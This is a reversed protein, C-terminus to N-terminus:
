RRNVHLEEVTIPHADCQNALLGFLFCLTDQVQHLFRQYPNEYGTGRKVIKTEVTLMYTTSKAVM